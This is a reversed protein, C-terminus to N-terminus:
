LIEQVSDQILVRLSHKVLASFGYQKAPAKKM